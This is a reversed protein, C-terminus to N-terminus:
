RGSYWRGLLGLLVENPTAVYEPHLEFRAREFYQVTYVKGDTASVEQFEESLPYGFIPLGGYRHWYTLFPGGLNHGTSEFYLWTPDSSLPAARGFAADARGEIMYSGLLGLLVENLTGAYEPHYEFRQREFYQV